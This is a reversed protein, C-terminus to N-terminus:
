KKTNDLGSLCVASKIYGNPVLLFWLEDDDDESKDRQFNKWNTQVEIAQSGLHKKLWDKQTLNGDVLLVM